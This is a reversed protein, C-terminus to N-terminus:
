GFYPPARARQAQAPPYPRPWLAKIFVARTEILETPALVLPSALADLVGCFPCLTCDAGRKGDVPPAGDRHDQCHLGQGTSAGVSAHVHGVKGQGAVILALALSVTTLFRRWAHMAEFLGLGQFLKVVDNNALM